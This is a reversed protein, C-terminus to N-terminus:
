KIGLIIHQFKQISNPNKIFQYSILIQQLNFGDSFGKNGLDNRGSSIFGLNKNYHRRKKFEM